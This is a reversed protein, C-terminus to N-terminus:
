QIPKFYNKVKGSSEPMAPYLKEFRKIFNYDKKFVLKKAGRSSEKPKAKNM